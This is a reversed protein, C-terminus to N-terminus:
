HSNNKILGKDIYDKYCDSICEKFTETINFYQLLQFTVECLQFAEFALHKKDKSNGKEISIGKREYHNLEWVVEGAEELIRCGNKFPEDGQPFRNTQAEAIKMLMEFCNTEGM